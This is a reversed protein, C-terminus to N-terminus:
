FDDPTRLGHFLSDTDSSNREENDQEEGDDNQQRQGRLEELAIALDEPRVSRRRIRRKVGNGYKGVKFQYDTTSPLYRCPRVNRGDRISPYLLSTTIRRELVNEKISNMIM